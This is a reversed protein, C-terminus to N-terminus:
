SPVFTNYGPTHVQQQANSYYSNIETREYRLGAKIDFVNKVPLSIETYLAYVKQHYRLFNSLSSDYAWSRADAQLRNVESLSSIGYIMSDDPLLFQQNGAQIFDHGFDGNYSIELEHDEEVFKRKYNLNAE